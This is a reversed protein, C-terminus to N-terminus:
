KVFPKKVFDSYEYLDRMCAFNYIDAALIDKELTSLIEPYKHADKNINTIVPISTGEKKAKRLLGSGKEDFALVRIYNCANRCDERTIGLLTNVLVRSVRTRTYRKSKLDSIIDEYSKWYRVRNKMINDLGEEAGYIENLEDASSCLIKQIILRFMMENDAIDNANKTLIEWSFEPIVRSINEGRCLMRRIATASAFDGSAEEQHYDAAFRRVTMPEATKMRKIYEVALINNPSELLSAGQEGLINKLAISRAKPYTLGKRVAKKIEEEIIEDNEAIARSIDKLEDINGSESGFSIIDAGLNELIEVGGQAFAGANSCAFIVPMEVVLNVGNRVAMEARTWKDLLAPEGRQTFNGSIVAVCIGAESIKLSQALQYKHGNHFPNYEAIIGIVKERGM